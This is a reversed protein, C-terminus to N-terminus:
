WNKETNLQKDLQRRLRKQIDQEDRNLANLLREADTRSLEGDKPVEQEGSQKEDEQDQSEQDQSEQDQSEQDQLQQRVFELNYKLDVDDSTLRLGEKYAEISEELRGLRYLSNGMNYYARAKLALDGRLANMFSQVAMPYEQQRYFVNGRNYHLSPNKDDNKLAEDYAALAEDYKGQDYFENGQTSISNPFWAWFTIITLILVM